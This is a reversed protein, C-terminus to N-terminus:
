QKLTQNEERDSLFELLCQNIHKELGTFISNHSKVITEQWIFLWANM